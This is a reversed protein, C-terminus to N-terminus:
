PKFADIILSTYNPLGDRNRPDFRLSRRVMGDRPDWDTSRFVGSLDHWELLTVLFGAEAMMATLMEHNYLVRHDDAGAGSGGPRVAEIYAPDPHYGDPVAVRFRGGRRLACWANRAATLADDESMHELVHEALLADVARGRLLRAWNAECTIDLVHRDTAIWGPAAIGGAGLTLRLPRAAAVRLMALGLALVRRLSTVRNM